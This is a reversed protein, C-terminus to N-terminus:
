PCFDIDVRYMNSKAWERILPMDKNLAGSISRVVRGCATTLKKNAEKYGKVSSYLQWPNDSGDAIIYPKGNVARRVCDQYTYDPESDRAGWERLELQLTRFADHMMQVRELRTTNNM